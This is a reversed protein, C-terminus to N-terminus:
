QNASCVDSGKKLTVANAEPLALSTEEIADRDVTMGTGIEVTVNVTVYLYVIPCPTLRYQYTYELAATAAVSFQSFNYANDVPNYKFMFAMSISFDVTFSSSKMKGSDKAEKYSDSTNKFSDMSPKKLFDRLKGM